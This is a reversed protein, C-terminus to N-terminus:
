FYGIFVDAVRVRACMAGRLAVPLGVGREPGDGAGRVLLPVAEGCVARGEMFQVGTWWIKVSDGFLRPRYPPANDLFVYVARM